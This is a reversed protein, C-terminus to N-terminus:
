ISESTCKVIFQSYVSLYLQLLCLPVYHTVWVWLYLQSYLVYVPICIYIYVRVADLKLLAWLTAQMYVGWFYVLCACRVRRLTYLGCACMVSEFPRQGKVLEPCWARWWSPDVRAHSTSEGGYDHAGWEVGFSRIVALRGQAECRALTTIATTIRTWPIADWCWSLTTITTAITTLSITEWFWSQSTISTISTTLPIARGSAM